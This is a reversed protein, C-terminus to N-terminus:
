VFLEVADGHVGDAALQELQLGLGEAEWEPGNGEGPGAGIFLVFSAHGREALTSGAFGNLGHCEAIEKEGVDAGIAFLLEGAGAEFGDEGDPLDGGRREGAGHDGGAEAGFDRADVRTRGASNAPRSKSEWNRASRGGLM